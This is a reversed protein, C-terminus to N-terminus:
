ERAFHYGTDGLLVNDERFLTVDVVLLPSLTGGGHWRDIIMLVLWARRALKEDANPEGHQYPQKLHLGLFTSMSVALGYWVPPQFASPNNVDTALAMLILAELYVLNDTPSRMAADEFQLAMLIETAKTCHQVVRPHTVADSSAPKALTQLAALVVERM